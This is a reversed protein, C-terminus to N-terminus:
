RMRPGRHFGYNRVDAVRAAAGADRTAAMHKLRQEIQAVEADIASTDSEEKVLMNRAVKFIVWDEWAAFGDLVDEDEALLPPNPVYYVIYTSNGPNRDFHLAADAGDIGNSAVRYRTAVRDAYPYGNTQGYGDREQLQYSELPYRSRGRSHDVGRLVYFDEPLTVTWPPESSSTTVVSAEVVYRDSDAAVLMDYLQAVRQDIWFNAEADSIFTSNVQDALQRAANRLAARDRTRAM